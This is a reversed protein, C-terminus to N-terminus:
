TLPGLTFHPHVFANGPMIEVWFFVQANTGAYALGLSAASPPAFMSGPWTAPFTSFTLGPVTSSPPYTLPGGTSPNAHTISGEASGAAAASPSACTPSLVAASPPPLPVTARACDNAAASVADPKARKGSREGVAYPDSYKRRKGKVAGICQETINGSSPGPKRRPAKRAGMREATKAWTKQNPNFNDKEPLAQSRNALTIVAKLSHKVTKLAELDPTADDSLATLQQCLVNIDKLLVVREEDANPKPASQPLDQDRMCELIKSFSSGKSRLAPFHENIAAIHKCLWIRPFDKCDCISQTLNILYRHGPNSESAVLFETNSVPHISDPSINRTSELIQECRAEELDPGELGVLQRKHRNQCDSIFYTVFKEIVYNIRWNRKGGLCHSKL